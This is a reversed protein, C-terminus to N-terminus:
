IEVVRGMRVSLTEPSNYRHIDKYIGLLGGSDIGGSLSTITHPDSLNELTKRVANRGDSVLKKYSYEKKSLLSEIDWYDKLQVYDNKFTGVTSSPIIKIDSYVTDPPLVGQFIILEYLGNHDLKKVNPSLSEIKSAVSYGKETKKYYIENSGFHDNFVRLIKLNKYIVLVIFNDLDSNNFLNELADADCKAIKKLLCSDVGESLIIKENFYDVQLDTDFTVDDKKVKITFM